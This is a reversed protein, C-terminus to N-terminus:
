EGRNELIEAEDSTSLRAISGFEGIIREILDEGLSTNDVWEILLAKIEMTDM